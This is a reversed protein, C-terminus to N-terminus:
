SSINIPALSWGGGIAQILGVTADLRRTDLELSAIQTSLETTQATVVDLYSVVGDRYRSMSLTLTRQAATLAEDERQAEDGLHHLLALNDEVQQFAGLVTAKYQAGNEALLARAGRVVAARRGGDFITMMLTPGISWMENPAVIWPSFTDSQFGGDLGLSLDPFFAAKAVGIQANAAAVRREAAAIDPRRQLLASPLGAPLNPLHPRITDPAVNFQSAPVGILTAIAHEYLARRASVDDAAAQASALQTKARSVDLSSAIGGRHRSETLDLAHRYAAITEDLLKSQQDLGLLDFWTTALRAQLSLQLSAIDAESAVSSAEDAKVENRVKGWLDIDYGIGVDLTNSNYVNPQDSGRLPRLASQRERSVNAEAGVSPLLASRAQAVLADAEDHRALAAAVNPNAKAVQPELQNLVPDDFARWWGDRPLQDAPRATQWGGAEKFHTPIATVPARYAPAFSCASLLLAAALAAARLPHAPVFPKAM